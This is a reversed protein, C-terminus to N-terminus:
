IQPLYLNLGPYIWEKQQKDCQFCNALACQEPLATLVDARLTRVGQAALWTIAENLFYKALGMQRYKPLIYMHVLKAQTGQGFCLLEGVQESSLTLAWAAFLPYSRQEMLTQMQLPRLRFANMRALFAAANEPSDLSVPAISPHIGAPLTVSEKLGLVRVSLLQDTLDFGASRYFEISELDDARIETYLHAPQRHEQVITQSRGLVSGFAAHRILGAAPISFFIRLPRQPYLLPMEQPLVYAQVLTQGDQSVTIFNEPPIKETHTAGISVLM